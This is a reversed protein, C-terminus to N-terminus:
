GSNLLSRTHLDQMGARPLLSIHENGAPAPDETDGCEPGRKLGREGAGVRCRRFNVELSHVIAGVNAATHSPRARGPISVCHRGHEIEKARRPPPQTDFFNRGCFRDCIKTQRNRGRWSFCRAGAATAPCLFVPRSPGASLRTRSFIVVSPMSRSHGPMPRVGACRDPAGALSRPRCAM